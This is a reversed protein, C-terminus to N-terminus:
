DLVLQAWDPMHLLTFIIFQQFMRAFLFTCAFMGVQNKDGDM